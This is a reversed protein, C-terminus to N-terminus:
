FLAAKLAAAVASAKTGASPEDEVFDPNIDGLGAYILDKVSQNEQSVLIRFAELDKFYQDKADQAQSCKAQDYSDAAFTCYANIERNIEGRRRALEQAQRRYEIPTGPLIADVVSDLASNTFNTVDAIIEPGKWKMLVYAALFAGGGALATGAAMALNTVADLGVNAAAIQEVRTIKSREFDSLSIRHEIVQDPRRRPL